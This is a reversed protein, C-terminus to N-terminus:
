GVDQDVARKRKAGAAGADLASREESRAPVRTVAHHSRWGQGRWQRGASRRVVFATSWCPPLHPLFWRNRPERRRQPTPRSGRRSWGFEGTAGGEAFRSAVVLDAGEEAAAVLRAVVYPPHQLDGDMVVVYTGRAVRLGAVVAGSLGGARQGRARHILRIRCDLGVPYGDIVEPTDDDSDDVFIVEAGAKLCPILRDLLVAINASENRTPVIVSVGVAASGLVAARPKSAAGLRVGLYAMFGGLQAGRTAAPTVRHLTTM